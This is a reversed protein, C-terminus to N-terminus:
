PRRRGACRARGALTRRDRRAVAARLAGGGARHGAAARRRAPLDGRCAPANADDLDFDPDRARARQASCRSPMWAPWRTRTRPRRRARAARAAVRPLAGRRAPRAARPQHRPGHARSLCALLRGIFPAAALVHEFNDLVLLLHKAALFREAAQDASEGSLVVIALTKVIAAPVDEPRQLAALSVFHAGDAFDAKSRARRRWRWARRASGARAPSPSCGCAASAFGTPSRACTTTM